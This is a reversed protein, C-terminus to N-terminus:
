RRKCSDAEAKASPQYIQRQRSVITHFQLRHLLLMSCPFNVSNTLNHTVKIWAQRGYDHGILGKFGSNFGM